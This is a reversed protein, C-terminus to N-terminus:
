AGRPGALVVNTISKTPSSEPAKTASDVTAVPSYAVSRTRYVWLYVVVIILIFGLVTISAVAISWDRVDHGSKTQFCLSVYDQKSQSDLAVDAQSNDSSALINSSAQVNDTFSTPPLTMCDSRNSEVQTIFDLMHYFFRDCATKPTLIEELLHRLEPSVSTWAKNEHELQLDINIRRKLIETLDDNEMLAVVHVESVIAALASVAQPCKGSESPLEQKWIAPLENEPTAFWWYQNIDQKTTNLYARAWELVGLYKFPFIEKWVPNEQFFPHDDPHKTVYFFYSILM